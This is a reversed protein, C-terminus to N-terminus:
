TERGSAGSHVIHGASEVPYLLCTQCLTDRCAKQPITVPGVQAYFITCRRKTGRICQFASRSGCIGISLFCTDLTIHGSVSKIFVAGPGGSCSFYYVSMERGPCV